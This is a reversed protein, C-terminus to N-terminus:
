LLETLYRSMNRLTGLKEAGIGDPEFHMVDNRIERVQNLFAVFAEKENKINIKKWQKPNEFIRIYEGFTLDDYDYPHAMHGGMGGENITSEYYHNDIYEQLTYM